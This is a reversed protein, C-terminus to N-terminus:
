ARDGEQITTVPKRKQDRLATLFEIFGPTLLMARLSETKAQIVRNIERSEQPEKMVTIKLHNEFQTEM